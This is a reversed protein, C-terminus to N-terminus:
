SETGRMRAPFIVTVDDTIETQCALVTHEGEATILKVECKRAPATAARLARRHSIDATHLANM